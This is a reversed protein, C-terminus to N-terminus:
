WLERYVEASLPNQDPEWISNALSTNPESFYSEMVLIDANAEFFGRMKRIFFPNDGEGGEAPSALGWEPYTLGKGRARAFDAVDGIGPSDKPRQTTAWSAEDVSATGHWDYTDCGILDVVDDGPYLLELSALRDQQGRLKVGCGIDFDIVLNPAQQKMVQAVKRFAAKYDKATDATANWPFWAGNAEWGIRIISNDRQHQVLLGAIQRFVEDQKGAAIDALTDGSDNPLLPLGYSLVAPSSAFTEVHWNSTRITEWTATAPYMTIADVPTGRWQGFREAREGTATDGGAWIGSLWRGGSRPEGLLERARELGPAKDSRPSPPPPTTSAQPTPPEAVSPRGGFVSWAVLAVAVVVVLAALVVVAPRWRRPGRGAPEGEAPTIPATM